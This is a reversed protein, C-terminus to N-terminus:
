LSEVRWEADRQEMVERVAALVREPAISRMCENRPCDAFTRGDYCPRCPLREGGWLALAGARRPLAKSPATPGLLGVVGCGVLGALHLSGTDHTVVCHCSNYFALLEPLDWRAVYSQVLLRHFHPEVWLDGPGGTLFVEVGADLLLRALAVYSQVPWRRQPDDRLSNRAGGPALAVRIAGNIPVPNPPLKDPQAPAINQERFGDAQGCLIRMFEASHHRESVLHLPRLGRELFIFRRARVPLTLLRYRRDYQLIACLDYRNKTLSLWTVLVERIAAANRKGRLLDDDLVIPRVWAYCSLLQAAAKGCLWHIRSGSDYLQRAAPLVSAVDGIAGPKVILSIRAM